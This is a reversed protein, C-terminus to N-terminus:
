CAKSFRPSISLRTIVTPIPIDAPKQAYGIAVFAATAAIVNVISELADSYLAISGTLYWAVFKLGM